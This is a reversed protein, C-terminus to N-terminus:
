GIRGLDGLCKVSPDEFTPAAETKFPCPLAERLEPEFIRLHHRPANRPSTM